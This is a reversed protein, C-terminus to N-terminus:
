MRISAQKTSQSVIRDENKSGDIYHIYHSYYFKAEIKMTVLAKFLKAHPVDIEIEEVGKKVAYAVGRSTVYDESYFGIRKLPLSGSSSKELADVLSILSSDNLWYSPTRPSPWYSRLTGLNPLCKAIIEVARVDLSRSSSINLATINPNANLVKELGHSTISTGVLALSELRNCHEAICNMSSETLRIDHEFSDYYQDPISDDETMCEVLELRKLTGGLLPIIAEVHEDKLWFPQCITLSTLPLSLSNFFKKLEDPSVKEGGSEFCHSLCLKQLAPLARPMM